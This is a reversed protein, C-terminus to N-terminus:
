FGTFSPGINSLSSENTQM